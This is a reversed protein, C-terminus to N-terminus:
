KDGIYHSIINGLDYTPKWHTDSYFLNCDMGAVQSVDGEEILVEVHPLQYTQAVGVVMKALEALTYKEHTGVNYVTKWIKPDTKLLAIIGSAADRGDLYSFQQQGGIIKLPQDNRINKLLKPIVRQEMGPGVLSSMRLNTTIVNQKYRLSTTLVESAYKAMAYHTEPSVPTQETWLPSHKQGYVSQSSINIIHLVGKDIAQTMFVFGSNLCVALEEAETSRSFACHVVAYINGWPFSTTKPDETSYCAFFPSTGYM